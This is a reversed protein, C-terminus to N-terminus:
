FDYFTKVETDTAGSIAHKMQIEHQAYKSTYRGTVAGHYKFEGRRRKDWYDNTEYDVVVKAKKPKIKGSKCYVCKQSKKAYYGRGKCAPCDYPEYDTWISTNLNDRM